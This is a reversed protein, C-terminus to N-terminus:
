EVKLLKIQNFARQIHNFDMYIRSDRIEPLYGFGVGNFDYVEMNLRYYKIYADVDVNRCFCFPDFWQRYNLSPIESISEYTSYGSYELRKMLIALDDLLKSIEETDSQNDGDAELSFYSKLSGLQQIKSGYFASGTPSNLLMKKCRRSIERDFFDLDPLVKGKHMYFPCISLDGSDWFYIESNKVVESIEKLFIILALYKCENDDRNITINIEKEVNQFRGPFSKEFPSLFDVGLFRNMTKQINDLDDNSFSELSKKIRFGIQKTM